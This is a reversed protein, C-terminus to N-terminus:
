VVGGIGEHGGWNEGNGGGVGEPPRAGNKPTPLVQRGTGEQCGEREGHLHVARDAETQFIHARHVAEQIGKGKSRRDM